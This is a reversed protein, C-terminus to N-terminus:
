ACSRGKRQSKPLYLEILAVFVDVDITANHMLQGLRLHPNAEWVRLLREMVEQRSIQPKPLQETARETMDKIATKM